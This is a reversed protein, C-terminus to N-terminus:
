YSTADGHNDNIYATATTHVEGNNITILGGSGEYGGGIGAGYSVIRENYIKGATSTATVYGGNITITGGNGNSGGGIGAGYNKYGYDYSTEESTATIKGGNIIITGCNRNSGDSGYDGGIAASNADADNAVLEGTGKDQGYINLTNGSSVTIGKSAKLTKGDCLILNVTGNVTIRGKIEVDSTVVYWKETTNQDPKWLVESENGEVVTYENQAKTETSTTGAIAAAESAYYIYSIDGDEAWVKVGPLFGMMIVALVFILKKM